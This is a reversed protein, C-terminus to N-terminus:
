ELKLKATLEVLKKEINEMRHDVRMHSERAVSQTNNQAEAFKAEIDKLVDKFAVTAERVGVLAATMEISNTRVEANLENNNTRERYWAWAMAFLAVLPLGYKELVTLLIEVSM